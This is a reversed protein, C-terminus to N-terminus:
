IDRPILTDLNAQNSTTEFFGDPVHADDLSEDNSGSVTVSTPPRVNRASDGNGQVVGGKKREGAGGGQAPTTSARAKRALLEAERTEHLLRHLNAKAVGLRDTRVSHTTAETLMSALTLGADDAYSQWTKLVADSLTIELTPM